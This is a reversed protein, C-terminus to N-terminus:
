VRGDPTAGSLLGVAFLAAALVVAGVIGRARPKSGTAGRRAKGGDPGAKTPPPPAAVSASRADARLHIVRSGAAERKGGAPKRAASATATAPRVPSTTHAPSASRKPSAAAPKFSHAVRCPFPVHDLLSQSSHSPTPPGRNLLVDSLTGLAALPCAGRHERM